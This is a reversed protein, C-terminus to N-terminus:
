GEYQFERIIEMDSHLQKETGIEQYNERGKGLVLLISQDDMRSLATEVATKRDCIIEYHSGSFGDTIDANIKELSETRPNDMTIFSFAAYTESIEAMKSRKRVDRDGGCGFVTIIKNKEDKLKTLNAFLKEYADPTHAYDIFVQGPCDCLIQELRGPIPPLNKIATEIKGAVIGRSLSVASAAMINSLNYEGMLATNVLFETEGYQLIAKTGNLSFNFQVPHLDAKENMGYTIVKASTASCIRDSYPDDLNIVASQSSGLQKFLKLKSIFYSEMDGHFDLHEPTLNSFVATDVYVDKVRHMDLAHSSIEMVVNDVGAMKLTQLMQHVEVSEPTTFGTSMMGTPTKFGLTGMTGCPYGADQLIHYLIHTISTKGNTGTVGVVNMTESPNGYFQASIQSMAIRPNEVQLIPVTKTKPSRGNSLIAAAGNEIAQSIYDHGDVQFGAIAVFITGSKVKRSDYTVATIECDDPNGTYSVDKVLEQLQM